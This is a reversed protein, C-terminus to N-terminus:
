LRLRGFYLNQTTDGPLTTGEVLLSRVFEGTFVVSGTGDLSTSWVRSTGMGTFFRGTATPALRAIFSTMTATVPATTLRSRIDGTYGGAVIAGTADAVLANIEVTAGGGGMTTVGTVAGSSTSMAQVNMQADAQTAVYLTMRDPSLALARIRDDGATNAASTWLTSGSPTLAMLFSVTGGLTTSPTPPDVTFTSTCPPASCRGTGAAFINGSLGIVVPTLDDFRHLSGYVQRAWSFSQLPGASATPLSALLYSINPRDLVSTSGLTAVGDSFGGVVLTSEDPSLALSTWGETGSPTRYDALWRFTGSPNLAVVFAGCSGDGNTQAGSAWEVVLAFHCATGATYVTGDTAVALGNFAVSGFGPNGRHAPQYLWVVSGDSRVRAVFGAEFFDGRSIMTGGFMTDAGVSGAIVVDSSGPVAQVTRVVDAQSSAIQFAAPPEVCTVGGSCIQTGTCVTCGCRRPDGAISESAECGDAPDENCNFYGVECDILECSGAVCGRVTHPLACALSASEDIAGDCDDDERMGNCQEMAFPRRTADMDDCDGGRAVTGAPPACGSVVVDSTAGFGDRDSDVFFVQRTVAEDVRTDCDNDRGDCLEESGPASLADRDDCDRTTQMCAADPVGDGDDDETDGDTILFNAGGRCDDDRGNCLEAARPNVAAVADDCDTGFLSYAGAPPACSVVSIRGGFGDGDADLYWPAAGTRDDVSANCDNDIGDCVEPLGPAQSLSMDNCDDQYASYGADSACRMELTSTRGGRGDGDVDRYVAQLVGEDIRGDCDDDIHNCVETGMPTAGRLADNCDNGCSTGNCCRADVFGDGDRDVGGLTTANCDEDRASADCVELAGPYRQADADDCDDGLPMGRADVCSAAFSGDGDEDPATNRCLRAEESCFDRTCAVGDDCRMAAGSVCQGGACVEAGNCFLGDDCGENTTCPPGADGPPADPISADVSEQVPCGLALLLSLTLAWRAHRLTM